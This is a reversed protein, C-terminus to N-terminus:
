ALPVSQGAQVYAHEYALLGALAALSGLILGFPNSFLVILLVPVVSGVWLGGWFFKAFVGKTMHRAALSAHATVHPLSIEGWSILVHILASMAVTWLSATVFAPNAFAGLIGMIAAGALLAQLGLHFPLLPNQWLDRAKSQAFLFATYVSTMLATPMLLWSLFKQFGYGGVLSALLWLVILASYAAIIFAGRTLWSKWQPRTFILYFRQPQTLDWILLGGTAALFIGAVLPAVWQALISEIPLVGLLVMLPIFFM